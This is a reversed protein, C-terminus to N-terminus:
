GRRCVINEVSQRSKRVLMVGYISTYLLAFVLQCGAIANFSTGMVFILLSSSVTLCIFLLLLALFLPGKIIALLPQGSTYCAFISRQKVECWSTAQYAIIMVLAFLLLLCDAIKSLTVQFYIQALALKSKAFNASRFPKPKFADALGAEKLETHFKAPNFFFLNGTSLVPYIFNKADFVKAPNQCYILLSHQCKIFDQRSNLAYFTTNEPLTYFRLGMKALDQSQSNVLLIKKLFKKTAKPLQNFSLRTLPASKELGFKLGNQDVAILHDYPGKEADTTIMESDIILSLASNNDQHSLLALKQEQTYYRKSDLRGDDDVKLAHPAQEWRKEASYNVFAAQGTVYSSALSFSMGLIACVELFVLLHESKKSRNRNLQFHRPIATILCCFLLAILQYGLSRALFTLGERLLDNKSFFTWIIFFLYVTLAALLSPIIGTFLKDKFLTLRSTGNLYRIQDAKEQHLCEMFLATFYLIFSCILSLVPSEQPIELAEKTLFYFMFSTYILSALFIKSKRM